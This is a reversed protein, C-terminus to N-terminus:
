YIPSRMYEFGHNNAITLLPQINKSFRRKLDIEPLQKVDANPFLSLYDVVTPNPQASKKLLKTFSKVVKLTAYLNTNFVKEFELVTANLADQTMNGTIGLNNILVDIQEGRNCLM